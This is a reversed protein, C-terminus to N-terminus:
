HVHSAQLARQAQSILADMMLAAHYPHQAHRATENLSKAWQALRWPHAQDPVDQVAFFRPSAGHAVCLADHCIKQLVAVVEPMPYDTLDEWEGALIRRPLESWRSATWGSQQLALATEPQGGAARLLVAADKAALGQHQLWDLTQSEPPISLRHILCRSKVTALLRSEAHTTLLFRTREGPEELTKLLANASSPNLQECPHIVVVKDRPGSPTLQCFALLDRVADIRIEGSPKRKKKDLDRAAAAELPWGTELGLTEPLIVKLDAHTKLDFQHCSPCNGCAQGSERASDAHCLAAKAATLALELQGQAGSGAILWAHAQSASLKASAPKLWDALGHESM